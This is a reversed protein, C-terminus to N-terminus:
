RERAREKEKERKREESDRGERKKGLKELIQIAEGM